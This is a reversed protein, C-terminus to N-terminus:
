GLQEVEGRARGQSRPSRWSSTSVQLLSGTRNTSYLGPASIEFQRFTTTSFLMTSHRYSDLPSLFSWHSRALTGRLPILISALAPGTMGSQFPSAQHLPRTSSVCQADLLISPPSRPASELAPLASSHCHRGLQRARRKGSESCTALSKRYYRQAMPPPRSDDNDEGLGSRRQNEKPLGM